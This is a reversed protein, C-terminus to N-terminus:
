HKKSVPESLKGDPFMFPMQELAEIAATNPTKKEDTYSM